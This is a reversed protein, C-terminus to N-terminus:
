WVFGGNEVFKLEKEFFACRSSIIRLVGTTVAGERVYSPHVRVYAPPATVVERVVQVDRVVPASAVDRVVSAERIM